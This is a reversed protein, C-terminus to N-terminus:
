HSRAPSAACADLRDVLEQLAGSDLRLSLPHGVLRATSHFLDEIAILGNEELTRGTAVLDVIAESM